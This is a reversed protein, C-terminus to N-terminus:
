ECTLRPRFHSRSLKKAPPLPWAQKSNFPANSSDQVLISQSGVHDQKCNEIFDKLATWEALELARQSMRESRFSPLLSVATIILSLLTAIWGAVAMKNESMWTRFRALSGEKTPEKTPASPTENTEDITPPPPSLNSLSIGQDSSPELEPQSAWASGTASRNTPQSM